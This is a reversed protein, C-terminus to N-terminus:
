KHQTTCRIVNASHVTIAGYNSVSRLRTWSWRKGDETDSWKAEVSRPCNLLKCKKNRLGVYVDILYGDM